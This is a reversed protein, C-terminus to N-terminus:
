NRHLELIDKVVESAIIMGAVSPVFSVSGLKSEGEKIHLDKKTKERSFVVKLDEIGRKRLEKRVIKALPCETTKYISTVELKTPELKNATGMSSIIPIKLKKSNVILDIKSSVSDIADVIYNYDQKILKATNDNTYFEKYTTVNINPNISLVREEMIDVKYKGITEYTAHIQRNLNTIDVKDNDILVLSGVGCRSLGEVAFSGVGGVGFVAVKAKALKELGEKGLLIETRSFQNKM